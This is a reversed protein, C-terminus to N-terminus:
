KELVERMASVFHERLEEGSDELEELNWLDADVADDGAVIEGSAKGYDITYILAILRQGPFRQMNMAEFLQLDDSDVKLGTEEELERAAADEPEEEYELFGAPLSWKGKGPEIGRKVFLIKDGKRMVVAAVPEANRWIVRDCAKCYLRKKGEAHKEGLEEGCYPCHSPEFEM